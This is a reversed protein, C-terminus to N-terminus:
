VIADVTALPVLQGSAVFLLSLGVHPENLSLMRAIGRRYALLQPRYHETLERLSSKNSVSDTKFDLIEAAIPRGHRSLVVLRDINGTLWDDGDQAALRQERRVELQTESEGTAECQDLWTQYRSRTLAQHVAPIALQRRFDEIAQSLPQPDTSLSAGVAALADDHPSGDEIWGIQEFFAHILTGRQMAVRGTLNLRDALRIRRGGELESPRVVRQLGGHTRTSALRLVLRPPVPARAEAARCAVPLSQWWNRDGAEFVLQKEGLPQRDTLAARVLGAISPPLSQPDGGEDDDEGCVNRPVTPAIIMQLCYVARTLAVYLVSLAERVRLYQDRDHVQQIYDPLFPRTDKDVYRVVTEIPETAHSRSFACVPTQAVLKRDLDPLIVVDFQLGKSQHVNMVRVADVTPDSVRQQQVREVFEAASIPLVHQRHCGIHQPTEVQQQYRHAVEVLQALRRHERANSFPKLQEVWDSVVEGYGRDALTVHVQRSLREAARDDGAGSLGLDRAWPSNALHFRAASDQPHDALTLLSLILQVAASDTLPNGGEESAPIGRKQLEFMMLGVLENTRVLIGISLQPAVAQLRQVSDAAHQIALRRLADQSDAADTTELSVYGPYESKSTSHLPFRRVWDHVPEAYAGLNEHEGMQLNIRNVVDIVVPASRFSRDLSQGVLNGLEDDVADLLDANGGRWGYIAQKLDGVCLFSGPSTPSCAHRAFPRIVQWQDLSTDQFEDLLLSDVTADMRFNLQSWDAAMDMQGLRRALDDFQLVRRDLKLAEYHRHFRDLLEYSAETQYAIRNQLQARAHDAIPQLIRLLDVPLQRRHFTTVGELLKRVPGKTAVDLWRQRALSDSLSELATRLQKGPAAETMWNELQQALQRLQDTPCGRRRPLRRWADAPSGLYLSYLGAVTDSLLQRIGRHTAGKTLWHLLQLVGNVDDQELMLAIAEERLQLQEGEDMIRWGPPLGLELSHTQTAQLFFSDLTSVRLRHLNRTLRQLAQRCDSVTLEPLELEKSLKAAQSADQTAEALRIFIRDLIEGAAKRTFTTALIREASQGALILRLYRNSLQFTKGTGASARIITHQTTARARHLAAPPRPFSLLPRNAAPSM